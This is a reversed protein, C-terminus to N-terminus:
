NYYSKNSVRGDVGGVTRGITAAAGAAMDEDGKGAGPAGGRTPTSSSILRIRKADPTEKEEGESPTADVM